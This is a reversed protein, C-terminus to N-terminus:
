PTDDDTYDVDDCKDDTNCTKVGVKLVSSNGIEQSVCILPLLCDNDTECSVTNAM